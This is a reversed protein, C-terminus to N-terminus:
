SFPHLFPSSFPPQGPLTRLPNEFTFKGFTFNPGYCNQTELYKLINKLLFVSTCIPLSTHPLVSVKKQPHFRP